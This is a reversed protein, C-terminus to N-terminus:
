DRSPRQARGPFDDRYRWTPGTQDPFRLRYADTVFSANIAALEQGSHPKFPIERSCCKRHPGSASRAIRGTPVGATARQGYYTAMLPSATGDPNARSRTMPAMVLRSALKHRALEVKKLLVRDPM